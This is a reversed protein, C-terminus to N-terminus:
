FKKNIITTVSTIKASMYKADEIYLSDEHTKKSIERQSVEKRLYPNEQPLVM